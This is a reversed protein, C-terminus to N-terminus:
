WGKLGQFTFTYGVDAHLVPASFKWTGRQELDTVNTMANDVQAGSKDYVNFSIQVYRYSKFSDNVVTGKIALGGHETRSWEGDQMYWLGPNEVKVPEAKNPTNPRYYGTKARNNTADRVFWGIAMLLAFLGLCVLLIQKGGTSKVM